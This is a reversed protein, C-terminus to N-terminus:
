SWDSRAGAAPFARTVSRGRACAPPPSTLRCYVTGAGQDPVTVGGFLPGIGARAAVREAEGHIDGAGARPAIRDVESQFTEFPRTRLKLEVRQGPQVRAAEQETLVVEAEAVGPEETMCILEGERFFQGVKESLRPTTMLGGAPSRVLTKTELEELYRLEERSRALRAWEAEIEEPRTGAQLLTLTAQADALGRERRATEADADRTSAAQRSRRQAEAQELQARSVRVQKESQQYEQKGLVRGYSQQQARARAEEAYVLEARQQEVQRDLRTLEAEFSKQARALDRRALDRWGRVREVRSRQEAVEEPRPGVEPLRRKAESERVEARKQTLHRALDPVELRVVVARPSVWGGEDCTAGRLFGAVPARPEARVVPHMRFFGSAHDDVRGFVLIMSLATLAMAWLVARWHRRFLMASFEGAFLGNLPGRVTVVGLLLAGTIGAPGRRGGWFRVPGTIMLALFVLSFLWTAIGYSVLLKSRPEPTPRRAGWLLWRLHAKVRGVARQQLNPIELFDGLLYYGDLKLLPNFNFCIRAGLVSLVVWALYNVLCSQLTLRWVFVALAWVCLDCYGGALTVWLRKSKERFPWAGSVNCYFCPMLFLMMVGVEHAEGGYHKRTLGHAFEHCLTATLLTVWVLALTEWRPGRAFSTALM